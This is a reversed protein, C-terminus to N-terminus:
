FGYKAICLTVACYFVFMGLLRGAKKATFLSYVDEYANILISALPWM